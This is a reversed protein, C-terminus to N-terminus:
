LEEQFSHRGIILDAVFTKFGCVIFFGGGEVQLFGRNLHWVRSHVVTSQTVCHCFSCPSSLVFESCCGPAQSSLTQRQSGSQNWCLRNHTGGQRQPQNLNNLQDSCHCFLSYVDGVSLQKSTFTLVSAALTLEEHLALTIELYFWEFLSSDRQEDKCDFGLDWTRNWTVRTSM